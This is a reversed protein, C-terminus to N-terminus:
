SYETPPLPPGSLLKLDDVYKVPGYSGGKFFPDLRKEIPDKSDLPLPGTM